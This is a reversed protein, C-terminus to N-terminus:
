KKGRPTIYREDELFMMRAAAAPLEWGLRDLKEGIAEQIEGRGSLVLSEFIKATYAFKDEQKELEHLFLKAEKPFDMM